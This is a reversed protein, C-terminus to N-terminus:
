RQAAGTAAGGLARTFLLADEGDAYYRRRRGVADFGLRRYLAQAAANSVRLELHAARAGAAEAAAVAHAVLGAGVGRRRWAPVVALAIVHLEDAALRAELYGILDGGGRAVWVLGGPAGPGPLLERALAALRPADEPRALEIRLADSPSV